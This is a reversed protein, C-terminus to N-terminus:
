PELSFDHCTEGEEESTGNSCHVFLFFVHQLNQPRFLFDQYLKLSSGWFWGYKELHIM